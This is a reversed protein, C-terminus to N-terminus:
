RTRLWEFADDPSTDIHSFIGRRAHDAALRHMNLKGIAAHPLVIAWYKFGGALVRPLWVSDSWQEDAERLVTNARDDSMWKAARHAEVLDAGRTLLERFADSSPAKLMQHHVIRLRPYYWLTVFENDLIVKREYSPTPESQVKPLAV